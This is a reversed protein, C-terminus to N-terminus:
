RPRDPDFQTCSTGSTVSVFMPLGLGVSNWIAADVRRGHNPAMSPCANYAMSTLVDCDHGAVPGGHEGDVEEPVLAPPKM